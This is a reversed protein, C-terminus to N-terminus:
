GLYQPCNCNPFGMFWYWPLVLHKQVSLHHHETSFRFTPDIPNIALFKLPTRYMPSRLASKEVAFLWRSPPKSCPQIIVKWFCNPIEDDWSIIVGHNKLPTPIGGVLWVNPHFSQSPRGQAGQLGISDLHCSRPIFCDQVKVSTYGPCVRFKWREFMFSFM